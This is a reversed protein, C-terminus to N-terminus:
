GNVILWEKFLGVQIQYYQGQEREVVDRKVLDNLITDVPLSTECDIKDRHCPGIGSNDAITKLIKLADEDSIADESTDGSNILNDFKDLALANVGRILENKVQEVDAETVLGAQKLNMYEVLRNCLIQIYFPSGATLDLIRDIARERYRSEGQRGGIRIPEDILRRADDRKLYTVREDQTTGFENPFRRKFKPMVDQGVLVASFYNTQLLAKWNQMFSEPIEGAVIRDYIYQFEDMLLVVRVGRWDEENPVLDKFEEFTEVFCQLPAPHEYFEKGSISFELSSFGDRQKRRIARALTTLIRNLFQYLLPKKADLDRLTGINGLDLILLKKNKQLLARLHYLVSSKGSRKQGFVMVCKSQLRSEQIASAINQILEDRGFFMAPDGVIGGEAYQAYPNEIKEFEDESYLRISLNEVSTEEQGEARTRYRAYVPLSFTQSALAEDTVRLPVKLISQEGGRLSEDRKIHPETVEFLAQDGEIALELSEAPSRGRENEVVIQVEIKRDTDPVYSEVPLRLTLQPTSTKYLEELYAEMKKQIVEIIPYVDEVSLKTPSREIAGLRAQCHNRLQICLREREEFTVQQRLELATQLIKLLEEVRQQDLEFFLKSQIDGARRINDELWATTLDFNNLFGLDTSITRAKDFDTNWLQYWWSVFDDQSFTSAPIDIGKNQLYELAATRLAQNNYLCNSIRNTAYRSRLLYRIADFVEDKQSHESIVTEVTNNIFKVQQELIPINEDRRYPSTPIKDRGLYSFLFRSLANIADQEDFNRDIIGDYARLAEYYWERITDLHMSQSVAADGRSAFSRCLFRFFLTQNSGDRDRYISAASLCYESRERPRRTGAHRASEELRKIDYRLDIESGTYKGEKIRNPEVGVFTCRELFFQAFRSLESSYDALETEIVIEDFLDKKGTQKAQEIADLLDASQQDLSVALIQNLLKEAEDYREQRSLCLALNRKASIRDPQRKLIEKLLKEAEVFKELKLYSSAIQWRIQDEKATTSALKLQKNLLEIAKDYVDFKIYINTLLNDLSQKNRIRSRNQEIVKVADEFRERQSLLSALDNVASELNDNQLIARRFFNEAKDLDKEVLQARKARAFSNSGKPVGIVRVYERWKEYNAQANPYNKNILLVRKVHSIAVGYDGADAANEALEYWDHITRHRSIRIAKPGKRDQTAQFDVPIPEVRFSVVENRLASDDIESLRFFYATGKQDRIFGSRRYSTYSYIHGQPLQDEKDKTAAQEDMLRSIEKAVSQYSETPQRDLASLTEALDPASVDDTISKRLAERAAEKEGAMKLLYVVTELLLSNEDQSIKRHKTQCIQGLDRHSDFKLLLHVYLYWADQEEIAPSKHFVRSLSYCALEENEVEQGVVALNYWDTENQSRIAIERYAKLADQRNGSLIYFYALQRKVSASSPFRNALNKIDTIIPQIRGFQAGLENIKKGYQYKDQIRNWIIATDKKPSSSLEDEPFKFDPEKLELKASQCKAQFRTEIEVLEKHIEIEIGSLANAGSDESHDTEPKKKNTSGESPIDDEPKSNSLDTQGSQPPNLRQLYIIRDIPIVPAQNEEVEIKVHELGIEVLRGSIDRDGQLFFKAQSGVPVQDQILKANM